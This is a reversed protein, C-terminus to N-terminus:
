LAVTLATGIRNPSTVQAALHLTKGLWFGAGVSYEFANWQTHYSGRFYFSVMKVALQASVSLLYNGALNSFPPLLVTAEVNFQDYSQAGLAVAAQATGQLNLFVFGIDIVKLHAKFGVDASPQLGTALNYERVGVGLSVSQIKYGIGAFANHTLASNLINGEYGMGFGLKGNSTAVSGFARHDEWQSPAPSFGLQVSTADSSQPLAAPNIGAASNIGPYLIGSTEPYFRAIPFVNQYASAHVACTLTIVSFAFKWVPM